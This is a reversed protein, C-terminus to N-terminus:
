VLELCFTVTEILAVSNTYKGNPNLTCKSHVLRRQAYDVIGFGHATGVAMRFLLM